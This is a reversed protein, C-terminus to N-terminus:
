PAFVSDDLKVNMVFDEFEVRLVENGDKDYTIMTKPLFSKADLELNRSFRYRSAGEVPATLLVSGEANEMLAPPEPKAFVKELFEVPFLFDAAEEVGALEMPMMPADGSKLWLKQGNLISVTGALNKPELVELRYAEPKQYSQKMRYVSGGKNGTVTVTVTATYSEVKEYQKSIEQSVTGKCATLSIMLIGALVVSIGKKM